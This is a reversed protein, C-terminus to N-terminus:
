EILILLSHSHSTVLSLVKVLPNVFVMSLDTQSSLSSCIYLNELFFSLCIRLQTAPYSFTHHSPITPCCLHLSTSILLEAPPIAPPSYSIFCTTVAGSLTAKATTTKNKQTHKKQRLTKLCVGNLSFQFSIQPLIQVQSLVRSDSLSPHFGRRLEVSDGRVEITDATLGADTISQGYLFLEPLRQASVKDM